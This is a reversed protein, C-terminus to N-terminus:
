SFIMEAPLLRYFLLNVFVVLIIVENVRAVEIPEFAGVLVSIAARPAEDGLVLALGKRRDNCHARGFNREENEFEPTEVGVLM